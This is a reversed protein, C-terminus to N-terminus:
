PQEKLITDIPQWRDGLVESRPVEGRPPEVALREREEARARDLEERLFPEKDLLRYTLAAYMGM